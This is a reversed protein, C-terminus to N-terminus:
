EAQVEKEQAGDVTKELVTEQAGEEVLTEGEEVALGKEQLEKKELCEFFNESDGHERNEYINRYSLFYPKGKVAYYSVYQECIFFFYSAPVTVLLASGFTCFAGMVNIIIIIYVSVIYTPYMKRRRQREKKDALKLAERLTKGDATLAPLWTSTFTLKLAQCAVILTMSFFLSIFINLFSLLYFFVFYCITITLVDILFVVPVYVLSYLSAKGLGKIYASSFSTEAYNSMKDSLMSGVSYFCLTDAFRKVLYLVATGAFAWILKTSKARLLALLAKLAVQFNAQFGSLYGNDGTAVAKLFEKIYALVADMQASEFIELLRPVLLASTLAIYVVWVILQYIFIKSVSKFNEM